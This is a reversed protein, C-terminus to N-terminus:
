EQAETHVNDQAKNVKRYEYTKRASGRVFQRREVIGKRAFESLIVAASMTTMWVNGRRRPVPNQRDAVYAYGNNIIFAVDKASIWTDLHGEEIAKIIRPRTVKCHSGM